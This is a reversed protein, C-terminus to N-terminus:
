TLDVIIQSNNCEKLTGRRAAIFNREDIMLCSNKDRRIDPASSSSMMEYLLPSAIPRYYPVTISAGKPELVMVSPCSELREAHQEDELIDMKDLIFDM